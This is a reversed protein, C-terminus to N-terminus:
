KPPQIIVNLVEQLAQQVPLSLQNWEKSSQTQRIISAPDSESSTLSAAVRELVKFDISGPDVKAQLGQVWSSALSAPTMNYIEQFIHQTAPQLTQFQSSNIFHEILPKAFLTLLDANPNNPDYHSEATVLEQYLVAFASADPSPLPQPEQKAGVLSIAYAYDVMGYVHPSQLNFEQFFDVITWPSLGPYQFCFDLTAYHINLWNQFDSQSPTPPPLQGLYANIMSTFTLYFQKEYMPLNPANEMQILHLKMYSLTVVYSSSFYNIFKQQTAQSSNIFNESTVQTAAWNAVITQQAASPNSGGNNLWETCLANLLKYDATTLGFTDRYNAADRFNLDTATPAITDTNGTCLQYFKEINAYKPDSGDVNYYTMFLDSKGAATYTNQYWTSLDGPQGNPWLAQVEAYLANAMNYVASGSTESLVWARAAFFQTQLAPAAVNFITEMDQAAYIDSNPYLSFGANVFIQTLEQLAPLLQAGSGWGQQIYSLFMQQTATDDSNSNPNNWSCGLQLYQLTCDPLAYGFSTALDSLDQVHDATPTMEPYKTFFNPDIMINTFLQPLQSM